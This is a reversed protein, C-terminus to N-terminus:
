SAETLTADDVFEEKEVCYRYFLVLFKWLQFTWVLGWRM